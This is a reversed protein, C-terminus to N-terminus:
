TGVKLNARTAATTVMQSASFVGRAPVAQLWPQNSASSWSVAGGGNNALALTKLTDAGQWDTGMDLTSANLQLLPPLVPGANIVQLM